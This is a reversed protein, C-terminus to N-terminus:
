SMIKILADVVKPDYLGKGVGRGIEDLAVHREWADRYPRWSVLADYADAVAVIRSGLPIDEGKLGDPYGTGSFNEHSHQVIKIMTENDYGMKRLTRAGEMPHMRVMDLEWSSLSGMRNLLHHPVIEKGIDAMFAAHLIDLKEKDTLGFYSALAYAFIAVMKSHGISGDLAEVPLTVDSPIQLLNQVYRYEQSFKQSVKKTDEFPDKIGIVEYAEIRQRRGRINIKESERIKLGAEAYALKFKTDGPDLQLAKEFYQLAEVPESLGLHIQGIQFHHLANNPEAAVKEHLAELRREKDTGLVEKAPLDRKKRADIFLSVTEYTYRDILVKGPTCSKQLRAAINVVDGIATYSQRKNGVLGTITSGSCIGIRMEWPYNVKTMKEQMKLAALVSLIRYTEYDLPAGFECMIGDGMYRDIHGRYSLLIPEMDGIYRNLDRIVIEPPNQESHTTFGVLDSFLVSVNRKENRLRGEIMLKVVSSDMTSYLAEEVKAKLSEISQKSKELEETREKVKNELNETYDKLSANAQKLEETREKVRHELNDSYDKLTTNARNLEEQHHQLERNLYELNDTNIRLAANARNLEEHEGQLQQNLRRTTEVEVVLKEHLGGVVAGALILFSGWTLIHLYLDIETSETLFKEPQIYVYLSIALVSFFAGLVAKRRGLYYGALIIPLFYFNLFAIKQEIFYNILVTAVLTLLVFLQEFNKLFYAQLENMSSVRVPPSDQPARQALGDAPPPPSSEVSATPTTSHTESM